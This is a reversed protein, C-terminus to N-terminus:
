REISGTLIGGDFIKGCDAGCSIGTQLGTVYRLSLSGTVHKFRRTGGNVDLQLDFSYDIAHFSEFEEVTSGPAVTATFTAGNSTFTISGTAAFLPSGCPVFVAEFCGAPDEVTAGSAKVASTM